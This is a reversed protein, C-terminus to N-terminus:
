RDFPNEARKVYEPPIDPVPVNVLFNELGAKTLQLYELFAQRAPYIRKALAKGEETAPIPCGFARTTRSLLDDLKGYTNMIRVEIKSEEPINSSLITESLIDVLLNKLEQPAEHLRKAMDPTPNFM